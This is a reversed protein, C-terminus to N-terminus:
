DAKGLNVEAFSRPDDFFRKTFNLKQDAYWEDCTALAEKLDELMRTAALSTRASAGMFMMDSLSMVLPLHHDDCYKVYRKADEVTTRITSERLAPVFFSAVAYGNYETEQDIMRGSILLIYDKKINQEDYKRVYVSPEWRVFDVYVRSEDISDPLNYIVTREKAIGKEPFTIAIKKM